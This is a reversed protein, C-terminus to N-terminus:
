STARSSSGRSRIATPFTRWSRLSSWRQGVGCLILTLHCTEGACPLHRAVHSTGLNGPGMKNIHQRKVVDFLIAAFWLFLTRHPEALRDPFTTCATEDGVCREYESRPMAAFVRVPLEGFWRQQVRTLSRARAHAREVFTMTCVKILTAVANVDVCDTYSGDSVQKKILNMELEDGALRFLGEQELANKDYLSKRM